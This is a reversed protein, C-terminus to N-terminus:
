RVVSNSFLTYAMWEAAQNVVTMSEATGGKDPHHKVALARRGEKIIDRATQQITEEPSQGKLWDNIPPDTSPPPVYGKQRYEQFEEPQDVTEPEPVDAIKEATDLLKRGIKRLTEAYEGPEIRDPSTMTLEYLDSATSQARRLGKLTFDSWAPLVSPKRIERKQREPPDSSEAIAMRVARDSRNLVRNCFQTWTECGAILEGEPLGVFRRRLEIIYPLADRLKTFASSVTEVLEANSMGVIQEFREASSVEPREISLVSM